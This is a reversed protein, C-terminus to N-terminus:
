LHMFSNMLEYGLLVGVGRDLLCACYFLNSLNVRYEVRWEGNGMWGEDNTRLLFVAYCVLDILNLYLLTASVLWGGM